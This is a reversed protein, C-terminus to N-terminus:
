VAEIDPGALADKLRKLADDIKARDDAPVKDGQEKLLGETQYVLSDANNRVEAEDRKRKDEEAHSEADRVMRDIEDKGLATGGSITMSQEKGTGLDKANVHVIGNADIDFTVEIQPINRPAPPIGTLTFTGLPKNRYAMDSEGQLVKIEVSPQNDDATTFTESKKVPITSNRETPKTMIQGKPEIGPSLPTVDFLLLAKVDGKLVGAQISAGAAVAEDPNVGKHREKGTRE